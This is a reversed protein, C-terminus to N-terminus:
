AIQKVLSNVEAKLDGVRRDFEDYRYGGHRLKGFLETISPDHAM